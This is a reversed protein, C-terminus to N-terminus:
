LGTLFLHSLSKHPYSFYYTTITTGDHPEYTHLTHPTCDTTSKDRCPRYHLIFIKLDSRCVQNSYHHFPLGSRPSLRLRNKDSQRLQSRPFQHKGMREPGGIAGGPQGGKAYGGEEGQDMHLHSIGLIGSNPSRHHRHHFVRCCQRQM